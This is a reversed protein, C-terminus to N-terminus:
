LADPWLWSLELLAISFILPGATRPGSISATAGRCCRKMQSGHGQSGPVKHM